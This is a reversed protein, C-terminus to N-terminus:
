SFSAAYYCSKGTKQGIFHFPFPEKESITGQCFVPSGNMDTNLNKYAAALTVYCLRWSGRRITLADTLLIVDFPSLPIQHSIALRHHAAFRWSRRNRRNRLKVPLGSGAQISGYRPYLLCATRSDSLVICSAIFYLLQALEM